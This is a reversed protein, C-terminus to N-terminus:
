GNDAQKKSRLEDIKSRIDQARRNLTELEADDKLPHSMWASIKAMIQGEENQLDLLLTDSDISYKEMM